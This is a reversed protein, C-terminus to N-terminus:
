PRVSTVVRGLSDEHVAIGGSNFGESYNFYVMVDDNFKYSTALRM